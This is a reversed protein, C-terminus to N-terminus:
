KWYSWCTFTYQELIFKSVFSHPFARQKHSSHRGWSDGTRFYRQRQGQVSKENVKAHITYMEIIFNFVFRPPSFVANVLAQRLVGGRSFCYIYLIKDVNIWLSNYKCYFLARTMHNSNILSIEIHHQKFQFLITM